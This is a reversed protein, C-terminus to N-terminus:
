PGGETRVLLLEAFNGNVVHWARVAPTGTLTAILFIFDPFAEDRDTPSPVAPSRPHSHYAGIVELGERRAARIASLYADPPIAYRTPSPDANDTPVARMVHRHRGVLLGCAEAPAARGSHALVERVVDDAMSLTDGRANM